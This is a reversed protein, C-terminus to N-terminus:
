EIGFKKQASGLLDERNLLTLFDICDFDSDFAPEGTVRAGMKIYTKLLSPILREAELYHDSEMKFHFYSYWSNFNDMVFDPTPETFVKEHTLGQTELYRYILASDRPNNVMVSSCGFLVQADSVKMYEAIGRWLLGIIAGNRYESRICARGLELHPGKLNYLASLNFEQSTYSDNLNEHAKLRYTGIIRNSIKEVIILHDFSSDYRDMDLGMSKLGQLERHFVDHRLRFAEVLEQPSDATKLLFNKRDIKIEFKPKFRYIGNWRLKTKEKIQSMIQYM